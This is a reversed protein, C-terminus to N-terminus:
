DRTHTQGLCLWVNPKEPIPLTMVLFISEPLNLIHSCYAKSSGLAKHGQPWQADPPQLKQGLNRWDGTELVVLRFSEADEICIVKKLVIKSGEKGRCPPSLGGEQQSSSFLTSSGLVMLVM